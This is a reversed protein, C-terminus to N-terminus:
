KWTKIKQQRKAAGTGAPAQREALAHLPAQKSFGSLGAEALYGSPGQTM